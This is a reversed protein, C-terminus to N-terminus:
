GFALEAAISWMVVGVLLDLVVWARPQAFIPALLRAGYALAFFFLFSASIAGAAFAKGQGPYQASVAGLLVVTDLWVHPNAWTLAAITALTAALSAAGGAAVLGSGGRWAALFARAGYWVLFAVGGWRLGPGLWPAAEAALAFGSVGLAILAADSVACFFAVAFVHERRLGQRLVFANQAGIAVILGLGLRLGAWFAVM